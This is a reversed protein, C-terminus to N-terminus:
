IINKTKYKLSQVNIYELWLNNNDIFYQLVKPISNTNLKYKNQIIIDIYSKLSKILIEIMYLIQIILKNFIIKILYMIRNNNINSYIENIDDNIDDNIDYIIDGNDDNINVNLLLSIKELATNIYEKINEFKTIIDLINTFNNDFILTNMTIKIDSTTYISNIYSAFITNYFLENLNLNKSIIINKFMTHLNRQFIDFFQFDYRKKTLDNYNTSSVRIKDISVKNIHIIYDMCIFKNIENEIIKVISELMYKHENNAILIMDHLYKIIIEFIGHYHIPTDFNIYKLQRSPVYNEFTIIKLIKSELKQYESIQTDM